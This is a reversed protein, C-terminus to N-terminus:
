LTGFSRVLQLFAYVSGIIPMAATVVLVTFLVAERVFNPPAEYKFYDASISRFSPQHAGFCSGRLLPAQFNFDTQPQASGRRSDRDSFDRRSTENFQITPKM